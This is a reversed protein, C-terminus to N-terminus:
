KIGMIGLVPLSVTFGVADYKGKDFGVFVGARAAGMFGLSYGAETYNRGPLWLTRVHLSEDFLYNQLFPLNKIFLYSSSYNLFGQLWQKDSSYAYNDLLSFSHDLFSTSLFLDNTNFHKFDPFYVRKSNLFKGVNVFYNIRDFLNLKIDQFVTADLRDYSASKINDTSIGKKYSLSLTPYSTREYRKRGNERIRYYLRPTYTINVSAQTATHDPIPSLQGRPINSSPKGGFLSFSLNNELANRKEHSFRTMLFLGNAVDISHSAEVFRKQYFKIPTEAYLLSAFSNILRLTGVNSFDATTNGGSVILEGRKSPAYSFKGDVQWNVTKRATVYHVSPSISLSKEKSFDAGLSLRQGLWVGDVFNYEPVTGLLGGYKIWYKDSLKARGGLLAKGAFGGLTPTSVTIENEGKEKRKEEIKLQLSDVQQYSKVEEERLPLNRIEAWYLSDRTKALSDVTVKINNVDSSILELSQRREKVEEPEVAEQMLKSMKYADRNSLTEKAVLEELQKQAKEQKKTKPKEAVVPQLLPDKPTFAEQAGNMTASLYQISANFKGSGKVGMISIDMNIDYATPLFALPKVENYNAIFRVTLGIETGTLDASYVNWSNEIIYLWGSVLKSNKKKPTVRIKNVLHKGETTVGELAFKYYSFAGPSLPSVRGWMNPDYINTTMIDMPNSPVTDFPITTSFALITEEYNNPAKFTIRSQSEQLFLKNTIDGLESKNMQVKLLRPMKDVKVTGKMYVEAEYEEVQHLYYPAMGIAKRMVTYAPDERKSSVVVERIAYTKEELKVDLTVVPKDMVLEIRKREYGLSSIDCTYRGEKLSTQFEGRDDVMIGQATEHIFVAAFPVPNGKNDIVKGKLVQASISTTCLMTLSFLLFFRM